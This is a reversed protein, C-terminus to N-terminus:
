RGGQRLAAAIPEVTAVDGDVFFPLLGDYALPDCEASGVKWAIKVIAASAATDAPLIARRGDGDVALLHSPESTIRGGCVLPMRPMFITAASGSALPRLPLMVEITGRWGTGPPPMDPISVRGSPELAWSRKGCRRKADGEAQVCVAFARWDIRSPTMILVTSTRPGRRVIRWGPPLPHPVDGHELMLLFATTVDDHPPPEDRKAVAMLPLGNVVAVGNPTRLREVVQAPSWGHEAQLIGLVASLDAVTPTHEDFQRSLGDGLISRGPFAMVLAVAFPVMREVNWLRPPFVGSLVTRAVAVVPLAAGIACAAQLHLLYKPEPHLGLRPAVLFAAVLPAIVALPGLAARRYASFAPARSAFSLPWAALALILWGMLPNRLQATVGPPHGTPRQLISALNHLWAPPALGVTALGFLAAAFVALVLRRHPAALAVLLVSVGSLICAIHVNALVAGVLAALAVSVVTPRRIVASCALVFVAGLPLVLSQNHLASLRVIGHTSVFLWAALAGALPGGLRAATYFVLVVALASLVQISRHVGDLGIGLWAFFARLDLWGVAHVLGPVSTSVGTLTCSDRGVCQQVQIEDAWTDVWAIPSTGALHLHAILAGVFVAVLTAANVFNCRL